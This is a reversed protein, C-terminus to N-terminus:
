SPTEQHCERELADRWRTEKTDPRLGRDERLEVFYALLVYSREIGCALDRLELVFTPCSVPNIDVSACYDVLDKFDEVSWEQITTTTTETTSTTTSVQCSALVVILLMFCGFSPTRLM